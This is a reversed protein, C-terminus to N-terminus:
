YTVDSVEGLSFDCPPLERLFEKGEYKARVWKEKEERSSSPTPKTRNQLKGEWVSNALTNGIASIVATLESPWEDLDLSRVRSVHTGLNRHIGSCEICMLAGLNLSAWDPSPAGCDVCVENGEMNRISQM